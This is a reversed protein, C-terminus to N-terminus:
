ALFSSTFFPERVASLAGLFAFFFASDTFVLVSFFAELAALDALFTAVSWGAPVDREDVALAGAEEVALRAVAVVLPRLVAAAFDVPVVELVAGDREADARVEPAWDPEALLEPEGRFDPVAAGALELPAFLWVVAVRLVLAAAFGLDLPELRLALLSSPWIFPIPGAISRLSSAPPIM